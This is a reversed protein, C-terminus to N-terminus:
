TTTGTADVHSCEAGHLSLKAAVYIPRAIHLRQWWTNNNPMIVLRLFNSQQSVELSFRKSSCQEASLLNAMSSLSRPSVEHM